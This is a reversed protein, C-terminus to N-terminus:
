NGSKVKDLDEKIEFVRKRLLPHVAYPAIECLPDIVFSRRHMLPHPLVVKPDSLILDDILLIDLDITRPAWKEARERGLEAEIQLLRDMLDEPSLLTKLEAAANLFKGQEVPGGVPETEYNSSVKIIKTDTQELKTLAASINKERDGINSGIAIFVQHWSREIEVASCKSAKRINVMVKRAGHFTLLLHRAVVEACTEVLNFKNEVMVTKIEKCVNSYNITLDLEDSKAAAAFDSYIDASVLFEQGSIKESEYVGHYAFIKLDRVKTIDL